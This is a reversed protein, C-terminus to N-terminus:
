NGKNKSQNITNIIIWGDITLVQGIIKLYQKRTRMYHKWYKHYTYSSHYVRRTPSKRFKTYLEIMYM